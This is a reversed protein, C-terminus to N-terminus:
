DPETDKIKWYHINIDAINKKDSLYCMAPCTKRAHACINVLAESCAEAKEAM